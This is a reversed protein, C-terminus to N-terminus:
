SREGYNTKIWVSEVTVTIADAALLSESVKTVHPRYSRIGIVSITRM